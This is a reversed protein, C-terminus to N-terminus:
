QREGQSRSLALRLKGLEIEAGRWQFGYQSSYTRRANWRWPGKHWVCGVFRWKGRVIYSPGVWRLNTVKQPVMQICRRHHVLVGRGSSPPTLSWRVHNAGCSLCDTVWWGNVRQTIMM